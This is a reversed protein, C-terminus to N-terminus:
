RRFFERGKLSIKQTKEVVVPHKLISEMYDSSRRKKVEIRIKFKTKVDKLAKLFKEEIESLSPPELLGGSRTRHVLALFSALRVDDANVEMRGDLAALARATQAIVIDPRHGDVELSSCLRAILYVMHEPVIVKKIIQRAYKIKERLAEQKEKYKGYFGEPDDSFQMNRKIIEARMNEDKIGGVDVCISLRDLLQPRIDGEEPNMTGILIFRAPHSISINEREVYNWGMAAADLILDAIHDPLLNIEDIYLINRNAKALIGPRFARIGERLVKEIDITGVVMEETAGIPLNVVRMKIKKRPLKEGNEIRKRCTPCMLSKDEPDCNFICDAVVEIPPLLDALARVIVSKGSGKEGGILLGGIKPNIAVALLALKLLNQNVFATFPFVVRSDDASMDLM